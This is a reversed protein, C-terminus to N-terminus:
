SLSQGSGNNEQMQGSSHHPLLLTGQSWTESESIIGCLIGATCNYYYTDDTGPWSCCAPRQKWVPREQIVCSPPWTVKRQHASIIQMLCTSLIGVNLDIQLKLLSSCKFVTYAASVSVCLQRFIVLANSQSQQQICTHIYPWGLAFHCQHLQAFSLNIQVPM